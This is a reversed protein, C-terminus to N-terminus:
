GSGTSSTTTPSCARPDRPRRGPPTLAHEVTADAKGGAAFEPWVDAIPEDLTSGGEDVLQLALLALIGKGVSYVDVITDHSWPTTRDEDAWGGVLDVAVEGGVIVHVAAGVEGHEAFNAAFADLVATFSPACWGAIPASM